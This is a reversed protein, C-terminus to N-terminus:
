QARARIKPPYCFKPTAQPRNDLGFVGEVIGDLVKPIRISGQRGHFIAKNKATYYNLTVGFAKSINEATGKLMMSRRSYSTHVVSLGSAAAFDSVKQVDADSLGFQQQYEERTYTKGTTELEKLAADVSKKRRIRLTVEISDDAKVIKGKKADPAKRASDKIVTLAKYPNPEQPM